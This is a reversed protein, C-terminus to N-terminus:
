KKLLASGEGLVLPWGYWQRRTGELGWARWVWLIRRGAAASAAPRVMSPISTIQRLTKSIEDISQVIICRNGPEVNLIGRLEFLALRFTAAAAYQQRVAQNFTFRILCANSHLGRDPAPRGPTVPAGGPRPHCCHCYFLWRRCWRSQSWTDKKRESCDLTGSM